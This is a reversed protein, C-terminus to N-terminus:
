VESFVWCIGFREIREPWARLGDRWPAWHALEIRVLRGDQVVFEVVNFEFPRSVGGVPALLRVLV